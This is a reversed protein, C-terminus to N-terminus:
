PMANPRALYDGLRSDADSSNELEFFQADLEEFRDDVDLDDIRAERADQDTPYDPGLLAMGERLVDAWAVGLADPLAALANEASNGGWYRFYSDFGGSNVEQRWDCIAAVARQVGTLNERGGDSLSEYFEWVSVASM